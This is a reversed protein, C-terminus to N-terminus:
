ARTSVGTTRGKTETVVDDINFSDSYPINDLRIREPSLRVGWGSEGPGFHLKVSDTM